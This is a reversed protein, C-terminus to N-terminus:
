GRDKVQIFSPLLIETDPLFAPSLTSIFIVLHESDLAALAMVVDKFSQPTIQGWSPRHM